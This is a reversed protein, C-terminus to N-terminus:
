AIRGASGSMRDCKLALDRYVQAAEIPIKRTGPNVRAEADADCQVALARLGEACSLLQQDTLQERGGESMRECKAALERHMAADPERQMALMRQGAGCYILQQVTLHKRSPAPPVAKLM